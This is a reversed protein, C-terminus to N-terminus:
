PNRILHLYIQLYGPIEECKNFLNKFFFRMIRSSIYDIQDIKVSSSLLSFYKLANETRQTPRLKEVNMASIQVVRSNTSITLLLYVEDQM